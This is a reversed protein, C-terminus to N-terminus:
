SFRMSRMATFRSYALTRQAEAVVVREPTVVIRATTVAQTLLEQLRQLQDTLDAVSDLVEDGPMPISLGRQVRRRAPGGIVGNSGFLPRCVVASM